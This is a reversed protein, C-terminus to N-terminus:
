QNVQIIIEDASLTAHFKECDPHAMLAKALVPKLLHRISRILSRAGYEKLCQDILKQRVQPCLSLQANKKELQQNLLDLQIDLISELKEHTISNFFLINDIRNLFEPDFKKALANKFINNVDNQQAQLNFWARWGRKFKERYLNVQEAGINSTMFILANSFDIQKSGSSLHLTANDFINLLSRIVKDDAKEIEDLLVISPQSYTGQIKETNFLSQNEKSGTYGPPSGTLAAGYHEQALTNMDIRCLQDTNGALQEALLRTIETKGVGTPGLFLFVGLPKNADTLDAKLCVLLDEIAALVHDQGIIRKRLQQMVQEPKFRFRSLRKASTADSVHSSQKAEDLTQQNNALVENIFPM